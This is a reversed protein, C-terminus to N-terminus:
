AKCRIVVTELVAMAGDCKSYCYVKDVITRYYTNVLSRLAQKRADAESRARAGFSCHEVEGDVLVTFDVVFEKAYSM